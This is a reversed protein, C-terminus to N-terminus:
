DAAVRLVRGAWDASAAARYNSWRSGVRYHLVARQGRADRLAIRVRSRSSAPIRERIVVRGRSDARLVDVDGPGVRLEVRSEPPLDSALLTTRAGAEGSAPALRVPAAGAPAAALALVVVLVLLVM